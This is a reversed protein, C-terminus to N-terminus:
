KNRIEIPDDIDILGQRYAQKAEELTNFYRTRVDAGHKMRTGISLGIQYEIEPKYVIGRSRMAASVAGNMEVRLRSM